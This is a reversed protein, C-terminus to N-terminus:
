SRSHLNQTKSRTKYILNCVCVCVSLYVGLEHIYIQIYTKNLIFIIYKSAPELYALNLSKLGLWPSYYLYVKNPQYVYMYMGLKYVYTCVEYSYYYFLHILFYVYIHIHTYSLTHTHTHWTDVWCTPSFPVVFCRSSLSFFCHSCRTITIWNISRRLHRPAFRSCIGLGRM